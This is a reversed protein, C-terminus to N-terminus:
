TPHIYSESKFVVAAAIFFFGFRQCGVVIQLLIRCLQKQASSTRRTIVKILYGNMLLAFEWEKMTPLSNLNGYNGVQIYNSKGRLM